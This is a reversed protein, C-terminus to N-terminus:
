VYKRHPFIVCNWSSVTKKSFFRKCVKLPCRKCVQQASFASTIVPRRTLSSSLATTPAIYRYAKWSDTILKFFVKRLQRISIFTRSFGEFLKGALFSCLKRMLHSESKSLNVIKSTKKLNQIPFYASPKIHIFDIRLHNLFCSRNCLKIVIRCKKGM